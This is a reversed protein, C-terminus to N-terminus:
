WAAWGLTDTRAGCEAWSLAAFDVRLFPFFFTGLSLKLFM